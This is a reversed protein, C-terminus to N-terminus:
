SCNFCYTAAEQRHKKINNNDLLIKYYYNNEFTDPLPQEDFLRKPNVEYVTDTAEDYELKSPIGEWAAWYDEWSMDHPIHSLYDRLADVHRNHNFVGAKRDRVYIYTNIDRLHDDNSRKM